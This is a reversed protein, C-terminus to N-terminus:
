SHTPHEPSGLVRFKYLCTYEKNGWNSEVQLRLHQFSVGDTRQGPLEFTQFDPGDNNYVFQGLLHEEGNITKMGYVSFHKPATSTEGTLSQSKTVHGLTVHTIKVDKALQIHLKGQDGYFPWCYGPVLSSQPKLVFLHKFCWSMLREFWGHRYYTPSSRWRLVTAEESLLAFNHLSDPDPDDPPPPEDPGDDITGEITREITRFHFSASCIHRNANSNINAGHYVGMVIFSLSVKMFFQLTPEPSQLQSRTLREKYSIVPRGDPGYYGSEQLRVSRRLEQTTQSQLHTNEDERNLENHKQRKLAVGHSYGDNPERVSFVDQESPLRFQLSRTLPRRPVIFQTATRSGADCPELWDPGPLRNGRLHRRLRLM